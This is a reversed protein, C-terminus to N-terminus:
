GDQEFEQGMVRRMGTLAGIDGRGASVELVTARGDRGGVGGTGWASGTAVVFFVGVSLEYTLM